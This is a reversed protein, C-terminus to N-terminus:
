TPQRPLRLRKWTEPLARPYRLRRPGLADIQKAKTSLSLLSLQRYAAYLLISAHLHPEHPTTERQQAPLFHQTESAHTSSFWTRPSSYCHISTSSVFPTLEAYSGSFGCSQLKDCLFTSLNNLHTQTSTSNLQLFHSPSSIPLSDPPPLLFFAGGLGFASPQLDM